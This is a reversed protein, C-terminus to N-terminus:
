ETTNGEAKLKAKPEAQCLLHSHPCLPRLLQSLLPNALLRRDRSATTSTKPCPLAFIPCSDGVPSLSRNSVWRAATVRRKGRVPGLEWRSLFLSNVASATSPGLWELRLPVSRFLGQASQLSHAGGVKQVFTAAESDQKSKEQIHTLGKLKSSLVATDPQHHRGPEQLGVSVRSPGSAVTPNKKKKKRIFVFIHLRQQSILTLRLPQASRRKRVVTASTRHAQHQRQPTVGQDM